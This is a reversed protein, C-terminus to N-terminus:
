TSLTKKGKDVIAIDIRPNYPGVDIERSFESGFAGLFPQDLNNCQGEITRFTSSSEDECSPQVKNCLISTRMIPSSGGTRHEVLSQKAFSRAEERDM